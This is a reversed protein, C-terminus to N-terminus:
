LRVVHPLAHGFIHARLSLIKGVARNESVATTKIACVFSGFDCVAFGVPFM